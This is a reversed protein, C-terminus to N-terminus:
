HVMLLADVSRAARRPRAFPMLRTMAALLFRTQTTPAERAREEQAPPCDYRLNSSADDDDDDDAAAAAIAEANAPPRTSDV